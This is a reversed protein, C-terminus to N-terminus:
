EAVMRGMPKATYTPCGLHFVDCCMPGLVWGGNDIGGEGEEDWGEWRGVWVVCVCVVRSVGCAVCVDCTSPHVGLSSPMLSCKALIRGMPKATYTPCGLRFVDCCMPDLVWGGNDISGRGEGDWGGWRGVWVVCVVRSVGCVVCVCM